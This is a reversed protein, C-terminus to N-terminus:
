AESKRGTMCVLRWYLDWGKGGYKEELHKKTLEEVEELPHAKRTEESWWLSMCWSMMNRCVMVFHEANEMHAVGPIYNVEVDQLGLEKLHGEVWDRDTWVGQEHMQMPFKGLEAFPAEFPFSKFATRVDDQWFQYDLSGNWTTAGFQGGPKLVRLCDTLLTLNPSDSRTSHSVNGKIAADPDPIIHLGLSISVHTFAQDPLKTDKIM